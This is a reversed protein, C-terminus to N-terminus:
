LSSDLFKTIYNGIKIKKAYGCSLSSETSVTSSESPEWVQKTYDLEGKDGSNIIEQMIEDNINKAATRLSIAESNM